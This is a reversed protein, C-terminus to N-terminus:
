PHPTMATDFTFGTAPEVAVAKGSLSGYRNNHAITVSGSTGAVGPVTTTNLVFAGRAALTTTTQGVLAGSGDWFFINMGTAFDTPNQILLITIQTASDNYRPITYTTEYMRINYTDFTDCAGGCDTAATVRVWNTDVAPTSLNAFRLSRTFGKSSTAYDTTNTTGASDVLTLSVPDANNMFPTTSDVIVEYSSFPKQSVFYWDEDSALGSNTDDLDHTQFTGHVLENTTTAATSDNIGGFPQDWNDASAPRAAWIGLAAIALFAVKKM